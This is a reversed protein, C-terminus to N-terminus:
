TRSGTAASILTPGDRREGVSRVVGEVLAFRSIMERLRGLDSAAVPRYRDSTWLGVRRGRAPQEQGLLEPRCLMSRQGADVIAFGEGVLLEALVIAAPEDLLSV